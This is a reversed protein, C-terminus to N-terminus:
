REKGVYLGAVFVAAECKHILQQLIWQILLCRGHRCERISVLRGAVGAKDASAGRTRSEGAAGNSGLM